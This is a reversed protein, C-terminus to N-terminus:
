ALAARVRARPVSAALALATEGAHNRALKDAGHQLLLTVVEDHGMESACMLATHGSDTSATNVVANGCEILFRATELHGFQCAFMLSTMGDDTQAANVNAGGREVLFRVIELYGSQSAWMLATMGDTTM